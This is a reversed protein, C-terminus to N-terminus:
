FYGWGWDRCGIKYDSWLKRMKFEQPLRGYLVNTFPKSHTHNSTTVLDGNQTILYDPATLRTEKSSFTIHKILGSFIKSVNEKVLDFEKKSIEFRFRNRVEIGKAYYEEIRWVINPNLSVLQWGLDVIQKLNEKNLVTSVELIIQSTKIWELLNVITESLKLTHPTEGFDKILDIPNLSRVPILLQDLYNDMENLKSKSLNFGTTSLCVHIKQHHVYKLFQFLEKGLILPEGGTITLRRLGVSRLINIMRFREEQTLRKKGKEDLRYCIACKFPCEHLIQYALSFYKGDM